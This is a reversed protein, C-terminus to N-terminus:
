IEKDFGAPTTVRERDCGRNSAVRERIGRLGSSHRPRALRKFRGRAPDAVLAAKWILVLEPHNHAV